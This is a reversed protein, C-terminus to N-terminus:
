ETGTDLSPAVEGFLERIRPVLGHVQAGLFTAFVRAAELRQRAAQNDPGIAALGEGTLARMRELYRDLVQIRQEFFTPDMTYYHRRDGAFAVPRLVNGAILVRTNVSVSARSVKLLRAIEDLSLPRPAILMLGVLQGSIRPFGTAEIVLGVSEIFRREAATLSVVDIM